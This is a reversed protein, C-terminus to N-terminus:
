LQGSFSTLTAYIAEFVFSRQHHHSATCKIYEGAQRLRGEFSRAHEFIKGVAKRM